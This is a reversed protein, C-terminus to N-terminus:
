IAVGHNLKAVQEPLSFYHFSKSCAGRRRGHYDVSMLCIVETQHNPHVNVVLKEVKEYIYKLGLGATLRTEDIVAPFVRTLYRLVTEQGLAGFGDKISLGFYDGDYRWEVHVIEEGQLHFPESRPQSEFRPNAHFVSNMVLEDAITSFRQALYKFKVESMGHGLDLVSDYIRGLVLDKSDNNKIRYASRMLRDSIYHDLGFINGSRFKNIITLIEGVNIHDNEQAIYADNGLVPQDDAGARQLSESMLLLTACKGEQSRAYAVLNRECAETILVRMPDSKEALQRRVQEEQDCVCLELNASNLALRLSAMARAKISPTYIVARM